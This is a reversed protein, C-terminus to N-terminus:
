PVNSETTQNAEETSPTEAMTETTPQEKIDEGYTPTVSSTFTSVVMGFVILVSLLKKIGKQM